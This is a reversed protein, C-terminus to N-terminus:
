RKRVYFYKKKLTQYDNYDSQNEIKISDTEYDYLRQVESLLTYICPMVYESTWVIKNRLPDYLSCMDDFLLLKYQCKSIDRLRIMRHQIDRIKQRFKFRLHPYDCYIGIVNPLPRYENIM